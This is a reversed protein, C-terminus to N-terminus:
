ATSTNPTQDCYKAIFELLEGTSTSSWVFGCNLCANAQGTFPVGGILSSSFFRASEPRFVAVDGSVIRGDAVKDNDCSLCRKMSPGSYGERNCHKQIFRCLEEASTFGWVLGCDLCASAKETFRSGGYVSLSLLREGDPRFVAWGRRSTAIRGDVVRKGRCSYCEGLNHPM